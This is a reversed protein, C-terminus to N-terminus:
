KILKRFAKIVNILNTKYSRLILIFINIIKYKEKYFLYILILYFM